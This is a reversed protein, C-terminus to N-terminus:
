VEAPEPVQGPKIRPAVGLVPLPAPRCFERLQAIAESANVPDGRRDRIAVNTPKFGGGGSRAWYDVAHVRSLEDALKDLADIADTWRQRTQALNQATHRTIAAEGLDLLKQIDALSRATLLRRPRSDDSQKRSRRGLEDAHKTM